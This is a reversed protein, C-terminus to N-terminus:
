RALFRRWWRYFRKWLFAILQRQSLCVLLLLVACAAFKWWWVTRATDRAQRQAPAGPGTQDVRYVLLYRVRVHAANKVVVFTKPLSASAQARSTEDAEPAVDRGRSVEPSTVFECVGVVRLRAGVVESRPWSDGAAAYQLVHSSTSLYIGSGYLSGNKERETGSFNRLGIKTISYWNELTSGHFAVSSGHQAVAESFERMRASAPDHQVEFVYQPMVGTYSLLSGKSSAELQREVDELTAEAINVNQGIWSLIQTHAPSLDPIGGGADYVVSATPLTSFSQELRAFEKQGACGVDGGGATFGKPFPILVTARRHSRAACFLLSAELDYVAPSVRDRLAEVPSGTLSSSSTRRLDDGGAAAAAAM